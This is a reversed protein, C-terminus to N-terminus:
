DTYSKIINQLSVSTGHEAKEAFCQRACLKLRTACDTAAAEATTKRMWNSECIRWDTLCLERYCVFEEETQKWTPQRQLLQKMVADSRDPVAGVYDDADDVSKKSWWANRKKIVHAQLTDKHHTKTASAQSERIAVLLFLVLCLLITANQQHEM